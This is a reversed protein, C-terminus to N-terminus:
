TIVKASWACMQKKKKENKNKFQKANLKKRLEKQSLCFWIKPVVGIEEMKQLPLKEVLRIRRLTLLYNKDVAVKLSTVKCSTVMYAEACDACPDDCWPFVFVANRLLGDCKM